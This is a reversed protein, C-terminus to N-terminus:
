WCPVLISPSLPELDLCIVAQVNFVASSNQMRRLEDVHARRRAHTQVGFILHESVDVSLLIEADLRM